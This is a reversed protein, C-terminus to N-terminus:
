SLKNCCAEHLVAKHDKIFLCVVSLLTVCNPEDHIQEEKSLQHYDKAFHTMYSSSCLRRQSSKIMSMTITIFSMVMPLHVLLGNFPSLFIISFELCGDPM